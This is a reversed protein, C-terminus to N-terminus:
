PAVAGTHPHGAVRSTRTEAPPTSMDFVQLAGQQGGTLNTAVTHEVLVQQTLRPPGLQTPPTTPIAPLRLVPSGAVAQGGERTSPLGPSGVAVTETPEGGADSMAYVSGGRSSQAARAEYVRVQQRLENLEAERARHALNALRRQEVLQEEAMLREARALDLMMQQYALRANTSAGSSPASPPGRSPRAREGTMPIVSMAPLAQSGAKPRKHDPSHVWSSVSSLGVDSDVVGPPSFGTPPEAM